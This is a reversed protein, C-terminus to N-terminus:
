RLGAVKGRKKADVRQRCLEVSEQLSDAQLRIALLSLLAEDAASKTMWSSRPIETLRQELDRLQRSFRELLVVLEESADSIRLQVSMTFADPLLVGISHRVSWLREQLAQREQALKGAADSRAQKVSQIITFLVFVAFGIAGVALLLAELFFSSNM